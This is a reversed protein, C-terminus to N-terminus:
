YDYDESDYERRWEDLPRLESGNVNYCSECNYCSYCNYHYNYPIESGCEKCKLEKINGM